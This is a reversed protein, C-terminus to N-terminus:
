FDDLQPAGPLSERVAGVPCQPQHALQGLTQGQNNPSIPGQIFLEPEKWKGWRGREQCPQKWLSPCRQEQGESNKIRGLYGKILEERQHNRRELKQTRGGVPIIFDDLFVMKFMSVVLEVCSGAEWNACAGQGLMCDPTRGGEWGCAAQLRREGASM